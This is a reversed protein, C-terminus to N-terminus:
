IARESVMNSLIPLSSYQTVHSVNTNLRLPRYIYSYMSQIKLLSLSISISVLGIRGHCVPYLVIKDMYELMGRLVLM